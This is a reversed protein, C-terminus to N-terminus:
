LGRKKTTISEFLDKWQNCINEIGFRDISALAKKGMEIRQSDNEILKCIGKALEDTNLNEILLGTKGDEIIDKPGCPCAFSVCALGCAMAEILVMGFGEYRSSLVFISSKCYQEQINPVASHIHCNNELNLEKIQKNLERANGDGYITLKWDKHKQAVKAWAEILLDFGKQPELRGVAIVQKNTCTSQEIPKFSLPNYIVQKNNLESWYNYDEKSLVIFKDLKRLQNILQQMWLKGILKKIPGLIGSTNIARFNKKNIHIEGLKISTDKISNIFNIERRLMSVCIDPKISFLAKSLRKKYIMQKYLYLPIRKIISKGFLSDYNIDLNIVNVKPSLQYFPKKDKGDTLIIYIQYNFNDAFYNAKLTLVREMGGPCYLQPFCYVIRM